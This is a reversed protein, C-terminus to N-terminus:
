RITAGGNDTYTKVKEAKVVVPASELGATTGADVRANIGIVVVIISAVLSVAV